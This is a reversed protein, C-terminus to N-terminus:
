IEIPFDISSQALLEDITKFEPEPESYGKYNEWFVGDIEDFGITWNARFYVTNGARLYAELEKKDKLVTM